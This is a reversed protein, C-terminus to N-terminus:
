YSVNCCVKVHSNFAESGYSHSEKIVLFHPDKRQLHRLKKLRGTDTEYPFVKLSKMIYYNEAPEYLERKHHPNQKSHSVHGDASDVSSAENMEITGVLIEDTGPQQDQIAPQQDQIAPQQDQIV